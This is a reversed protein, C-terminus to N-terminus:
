INHFTGFVSYMTVGQTRFKQVSFDFSGHSQRQIEPVINEMYWECYAFGETDSQSPFFRTGFSKLKESEASEEIDEALKLGDELASKRGAEFEVLDGNDAEGNNMKGITSLGDLSILVFM